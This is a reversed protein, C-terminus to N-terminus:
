GHPDFGNGEDTDATLGQQVCPRGHPDLGNGDDSCAAARVGGHPDLGSGEDTNLAFTGALLLYLIISLM